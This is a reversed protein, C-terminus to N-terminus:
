SFEIWDSGVQDREARFTCAESAAFSWLQNMKIRRTGKGNRRKGGRREEGRRRAEGFM